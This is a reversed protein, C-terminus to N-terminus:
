ESKGSLCEEAVALDFDFMYPLRKAIKLTDNGDSASYYDRVWKTQKRVESQNKETQFSQMHKAAICNCVGDMQKAEKKRSVRAKCLSAIESHSIEVTSALAWNDLVIASAIVCFIIKIRIM